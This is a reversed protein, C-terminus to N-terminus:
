DDIEMKGLKGAAIRERVLKDGQMKKDLEVKWKDYDQKEEKETRTYVNVPDKPAKGIQNYWTGKAKMEAVIANRKHELKIQENKYSEYLESKTDMLELARQRRKPGWDSPIDFSHSAYKKLGMKSLEARVKDDMRMHEGMLANSDREVKELKPSIVHYGSTEIKDLDSSSWVSEYMEKPIPKYNSIDFNLPNDERFKKRAREQEENSPQDIDRELVNHLEEHALVEATREPDADQMNSINITDTDRGQVFAATFPRTKYKKDLKVYDYRNQKNYRATKIGKAALYHRYSEKHWGRM